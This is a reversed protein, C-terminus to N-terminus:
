SSKAPFSSQVVDLVRSVLMSLDINYELLVSCGKLFKDFTAFPFSKFDVGLKTQTDHIYIQFWDPSGELLCSTIIMTLKKEREDNSEQEVYLDFLFATFVPDTTM